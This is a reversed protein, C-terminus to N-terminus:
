HGPQGDQSCNLNNISKINSDTWESCCRDSGSLRKAFGTSEEYFFDFASAM